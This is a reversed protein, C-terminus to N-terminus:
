IIDNYSKIKTIESFDNNHESESEHNKILSILDLIRKKLSNNEKLLVITKSRCETAEKISESLLSNLEKQKKDFNDKLSSIYTSMIEITKKASFM